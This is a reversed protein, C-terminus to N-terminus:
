TQGEGENRELVMNVVEELSFYERPKKERKRRLEEMKYADPNGCFKFFQLLISYLKEVYNAQYRNKFWLTYIAMERM